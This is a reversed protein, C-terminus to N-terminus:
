ASSAARAAAARAFSAAQACRFLGHVLLDPCRFLRAGASRTPRAPDTAAPGAPPLSTAARHPRPAPLCPRATAWDGPGARRQAATATPDRLRDRPAAAAPPHPPASRRPPFHPQAPLAWAVHPAARRSGVEVRHSRPQPTPSPWCPNEGRLCSSVFCSSVLAGRATAFVAAPPRGGRGIKRLEEHRRTKTTFVSKATARSAPVMGVAGRAVAPPVSRRHGGADAPICTRGSFRRLVTPVARAASRLRARMGGHARGLIVREM